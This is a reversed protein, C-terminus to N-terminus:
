YFLLLIQYRLRSWCDIIWLTPLQVLTGVDVTSFGMCPNWKRPMALNRLHLFIVFNLSRDICLIEEDVEHPKDSLRRWAVMYVLASKTHIPCGPVFRGSIEMLRSIKMSSFANSFTSQLGVAMKDWGRQTLCVCCDDGAEPLFTFYMCCLNLWARNM